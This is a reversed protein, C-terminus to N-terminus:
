QPPVMLSLAYSHTAALDQNVVVIQILADPVELVANDISVPNGRDSFIGLFNALEDVTQLYVQLKGTSDQPVFSWMARGASIAPMTYTTTSNVPAATFPIFVQQAGVPFSIRDAAATQYTGWTTATFNGASTVNVSLQAYSGRLPVRVTLPATSNVSWTDTGIVNTGALDAYHTVSVKAAGTTAKIILSLSAWSIVPTIVGPHNGPTLTQTFSPFVNGSQTSPSAQWDPYDTM